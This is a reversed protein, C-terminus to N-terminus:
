DFAGIAFLAIQAQIRIRAHGMAELALGALELVVLPAVNARAARIGVALGAVRPARRGQLAPFVAAVPALRPRIGARVPGLGTRGAPVARDGQIGRPVAEGARQPGVRRGPAAGASGAGDVRIQIDRVLARDGAALLAWSALDGRVSPGLGNKCARGALSARVLERPHARRALTAPIGTEGALGRAVDALVARYGALAGAGALGAGKARVGRCGAGDTKGAWVLCVQVDLQFPRELIALGAWGARVVACDQCRGGNILAKGASRALVLEVPGALGAWRTRVRPRPGSTTQM